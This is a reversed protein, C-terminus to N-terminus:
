VTSMGGNEGFQKLIKKSYMAILLSIIGSGLIVAGISQSLVEFLLGYLLQGVPQSCMILTLADTDARCGADPHQVHHFSGHNGNGYLVTHCIPLAPCGPADNGVGYRM